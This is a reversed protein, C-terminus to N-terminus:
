TLLHNVCQDVMKRSDDDKPRGGKTSFYKQWDFKLPDLPLPVHQNGWKHPVALRLLLATGTRILGGM